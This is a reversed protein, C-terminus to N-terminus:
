IRQLLSRHDQAVWHVASRILVKVHECHSPSPSAGPWSLIDTLNLNNINLTCCMNPQTYITKNGEVSLLLRLVDYATFFPDRHAMQCIQKGICDEANLAEKGQEQEKRIM